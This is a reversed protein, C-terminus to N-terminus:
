GRSRSLLRYVIAGAAVAILLATMSNTPLGLLSTCSAANDRGGVLTRVCDRPWLLFGLVIAVVLGLAARGIM